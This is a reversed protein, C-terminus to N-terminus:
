LNTGKTISGTTPCAESKKDKNTSSGYAESLLQDNRRILAAILNGVAEKLNLTLEYKM